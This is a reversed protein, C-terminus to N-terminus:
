ARGLEVNLVVAFGNGRKDDPNQVAAIAMRLYARESVAEARHGQAV